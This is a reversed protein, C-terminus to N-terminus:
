ENSTIVSVSLNVEFENGNKNKQMYDMIAFFHLKKLEIIIEGPMQYYNLSYRQREPLTRCGICGYMRQRCSNRSTQLNIRCMEPLLVGELNTRSTGPITKIYGAEDMDIFGKFSRLIQSTVL